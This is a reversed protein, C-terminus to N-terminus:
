LVALQIIHYLSTTVHTHSFGHMEWKTSTNSYHPIGIHNHSNHQSIIIM